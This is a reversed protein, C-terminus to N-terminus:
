RQGDRRARDMFWSVAPATIGFREGIRAYSYGRQRLMVYERYRKRQRYQRISSWLWGCHRAVTTACVGLRRAVERMSVGARLWARAKREHDETWKYSGRRAM